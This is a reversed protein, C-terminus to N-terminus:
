IPEVGFQDEELEFNRKAIVRTPVDHTSQRASIKLTTPIRMAPKLDGKPVKSTVCMAVASDGSGEAEQAPVVGLGAVNTM